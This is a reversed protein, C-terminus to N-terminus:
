EKDFKKILLKASLYLLFLIFHAFVATLLWTRTFGIFFELPMLQILRDTRPNLLWLDNSFFIEHFRRFAWNFDVFYLSGLFIIFTLATWLAGKIPMIFYQINGKASYFLTLLALIMMIQLVFIFTRVNKALIYIDDLHIREKANFFVVYTGNVHAATLLDGSGDDIYSVLSNTVNSLDKESIGVSEDVGLALFNEIYYDSNFAYHEFVLLFINISLAVSLFIILLRHSLYM